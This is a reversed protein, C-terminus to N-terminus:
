TWEFVVGVNSKDGRAMAALANEIQGAPLTQTVLKGLPLRGRAAQELVYNFNRRKTAMRPMPEAITDPDSGCGIIKIRQYHFKSPFGFTEGFLTLGLEAPPPDRYIGMVAIRSYDRALNVAQRFGHWSGSTEIILDPGAEGLFAAIREAAGDSGVHEVAGLGLARAFAVRTPDADLALVRAGNLDAVLAASAGVLGMGVVVVTEAAAYEGLHLASVSWSCLYALSADRSSLGDPILIAREEPVAGYEQHGLGSLVVRQGVRGPYVGEGAAEIVGATMYLAETREGDWAPKYTGTRYVHVNSGPSIASHTIRALVQGPGPTPVPEDIVEIREPGTVYWHKM